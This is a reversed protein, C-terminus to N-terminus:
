SMAPMRGFAYHSSVELQVAYVKALDLLIPTRNDLFNREASTSVAELFKSSVVRDCVM